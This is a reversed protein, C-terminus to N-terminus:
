DDAAAAALAAAGEHTEFAEVLGELACVAAGDGEGEGPWFYLGACGRLEIAALAPAGRLGRARVAADVEHSADVVCWAAGLDAARLAAIEGPSPTDTVRPEDGWAVLYASAVAGRSVERVAAAVRAVHRRLDVGWILAGDRAAVEAWDAAITALRAAEDDDDRAAIIAAEVERALDDAAPHIWEGAALYGPLGDIAAALEERADDLALAAGVRTRPGVARRWRGHASIVASLARQGPPSALWAVALALSVEGRVEVRVDRGEYVESPASSRDGEYVCCSRAAPDIQVFAAADVWPRVIPMAEGETEVAVRRPARPRRAPAEVSPSPAPAPAAPAEPSPAPAIEAAVAAAARALATRATRATRATM